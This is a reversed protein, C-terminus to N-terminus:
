RAGPLLHDVARVGGRGAGPRPWVAGPQDGAAPMPDFVSGDGVADWPVAAPLPAWPAHSSVLAIEAMVPAHGPALEKGSSPPSRTSTPCPRGASRRARPLGDDARTSSRTTTRLVRGGALGPHRRAGLRGDALRGARLRRHPHLPRQRRRHPLAAPQRGVARLAADLPRALQRRRLDALHALRQPRRLRRRAAPATGADLAADVRPALAPDQVASRGYSEVFALIVTKGRLGTLLDAAPRTASPTSAPRRPSRRGTACGRSSRSSAPRPTARRRGPPSPRGAATDLGLVAAAIWLRSAAALARTAPRRHRTSPVPSGSRRWPPSPSSRARAGSPSPSPAWPRARVAWRPACSSWPTPSSPGTSFPTSPAGCCRTSAWTPPGAWPSSPPPAGRRARRRHRAWRRPLALALAVGALAEVPLRLFGAAGLDGLRDPALLVALM